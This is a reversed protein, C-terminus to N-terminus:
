KRNKRNSHGINVKLNNAQKRSSWGGQVNAITKGGWWCMVVADGKDPSRGLRETLKVKTSSDSAPQIGNPGEQYRMATLDSVLENDPPLAIPSGGNQAPDLAERLKWYAAIRTNSFKLKGDATRKTTSEAGKYSIIHEELGNDCLRLYAAGGYGGGMDLIVTSQDRRHQVVLGAIENGTPTTSGPVKILTGFWGDYRFAITTSDDGGQAIDVGMACMPVGEPVTASWRAQAARIWDTPIVQFLDDRRAIMFNGDRVASRLPEPMMDLKAGYDTDALFPNNQLKSRIFTRSMAMLEQGNHVYKGPGPVEVDDMDDMIFWRLEGQKAPKPHTPDLWPAFMEVMWDGDSTTPPNSGLVIRTRQGEASTRVWGILNRIQSGLWEGAEDIYLYDHPIGRWSLEDGPYQASGFDLLRGDRTKLKQPHSGNFGITTGYFKIAEETLGRLETSRRRMLLSRQHDILALGVGLGTKGGGGEGGFLLIDAKSERADYQPGPSPIFAEQISMAMEIAQKRQKPSLQAVRAILSDVLDPQGQM